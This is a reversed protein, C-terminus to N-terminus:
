VYRTDAQLQLSLTNVLSDLVAQLEEIQDSKRLSKFAKKANKFRNGGDGKLAEPLESLEQAQAQCRSLVQEDLPSRGTSQEITNLVSLLDSLRDAQTAIKKPTGVGSSYEQIRRAISTTFELLQVFNSAIAIAVFAEAGSM